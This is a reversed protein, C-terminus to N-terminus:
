KNHKNTQARIKATSEEIIGQVLLTALGAMSSIFGGSEKNKGSTDKETVQINEKKDKM